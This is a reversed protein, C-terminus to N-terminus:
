FYYYPEKIIFLDYYRIHAFFCSIYQQNAPAVCTFQSFGIEIENNKFKLVPCKINQITGIDNFSDGALSSISDMESNKVPARNSILPSILIFRNINSYQSTNVAVTSDISRGFIFINESRYGM